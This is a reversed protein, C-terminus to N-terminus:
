SAVPFTADLDGIEIDVDAGAVVSGNTVTGSAGVNGATSADWLTCHTWEETAAVNTWSIVATNSATGGSASGWTIGPRTTETAPNSTGAAGPAGVHMKIFDYVALLADLPTDADILGEAM